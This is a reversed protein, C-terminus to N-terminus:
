GRKARVNVLVKSRYKRAKAKADSSFVYGNYDYSDSIRIEGNLFSNVKNIIDYYDNGKLTVSNGGRCNVTTKFGGNVDCKVVLVKGNICTKDFKM